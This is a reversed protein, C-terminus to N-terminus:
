TDTAHRSLNEHQGVEFNPDVVLPPRKGLHHEMEPFDEILMNFINRVKVFPIGDQQLLVTIADFNKLSKLGRSLTDVDVLMPLLQLLQV